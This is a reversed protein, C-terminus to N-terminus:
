IEESNFDMMAQNYIGMMYGSKVFALQEETDSHHDRCQAAVRQLFGSRIQIASEKFCKVLRSAFNATSSRRASINIARAMEDITFTIDVRVLYFGGQEAKAISNEKQRFKKDVGKKRYQLAKQYNREMANGAEMM